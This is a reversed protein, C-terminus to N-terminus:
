YYTNTLPKWKSGVWGYIIYEGPKPEALRLHEVKGFREINQGMDIVWGDKDSFPRIVRGVIQYWASLSMTPRAMVVTDLEPYDFGTTLVGVNTLVKIKGTKFDNILEDREASPTEGTLIACGPVKRCLAESEAIFRTFVLIGKRPVGNKPHLLRNVIDALKDVLSVREFEAALSREDYDRGTSNRRVRSQDIVNMQFYRLQALYGQALLEDIGIQYLVNKFIRPRTRTLFKLICKNTIQVGAKLYGNENFYTEKKYSGNPRYEGNVEIGQSTYLRYPTATLGLVKRPVKEIFDKYQGGAANTGHCEDILVAKFQDFENLHNMVSGITAFTIRGIKKSKLSASYVSAEIGYSRLKALNQQLIEKSPQLVIIDGDLQRAIDAIILSKGSGTPAVIITNYQAKSRFFKVAADSAAQQYPRLTFPM